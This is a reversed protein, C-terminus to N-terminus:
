SRSPRRQIQDLVPQADAPQKNAWAAALDSNAQASRAAQLTELTTPSGAVQDFLNLRAENNNRDLAAMETNGPM